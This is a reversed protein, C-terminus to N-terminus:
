PKRDTISLAPLLEMSFQVVNSLNTTSLYPLETHVPGFSVM